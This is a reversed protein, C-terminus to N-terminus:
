TAATKVANVVASSLRDNIGDDPDWATVSATAAGPVRVDPIFFPRGHAQNLGMYSDEGVVADNSGAYSTAGATYGFYKQPYPLIGGHLSGVRQSIDLTTPSSNISPLHEWFPRYVYENETKYLCKFIGPGYRVTADTATSSDVLVNAGVTEIVIKASNKPQAAPTGYGGHNLDAFGFNTLRSQFVLPKVPVGPGVKITKVRRVNWDKWLSHLEKIPVHPQVYYNKTASVYPFDNQQINQPAGANAVSTAYDTAFNRDNPAPWGKNTVLYVRVYGPMQM